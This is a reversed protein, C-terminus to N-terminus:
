NYEVGADCYAIDDLNVVQPKKEAGVHKVLPNRARVTPDQMQAEENEKNDPGEEGSEEDCACPAKQLEAENQEHACVARLCEGCSTIVQVVRNSTDESSDHDKELEADVAAKGFRERAVAMFAALFDQKFGPCYPEPNHDDAMEQARERYRRKERVHDLHEVLTQCNDHTRCMGSPNKSDFKLEGPAFDPGDIIEYSPGKDNDTHPLPHYRPVAIYENPKANLMFLMKKPMIGQNFDTFANMRSSLGRRTGGFGPMSTPDRYWGEVQHYSAGNLGELVLYLERAERLFCWARALDTHHGAIMACKVWIDAVRSDQVRMAALHDLLMSAHLYAIAPKNSIINPDEIRRKLRRYHCMAKDASPHPTACFRCACLFGFRRNIAARREKATGETQMYAINIEVNPKIDACARVVARGMKPAKDYCVEGKKNTPYENRFRLVCNPICCHNLWALTLGLVEGVNGEWATPLAHQDWIAGEVGLRRKRIAFGKKKQGKALSLFENKWEPGMNTAKVQLIANTDEYSKCKKHEDSWLTMLVDAIVVTGAPIHKTAVLGFGSKDNIWRKEFCDSVVPERLDCNPLDQARTLNAAALQEHALDVSHWNKNGKLASSNVYEDVFPLQLYEPPIDALSDPVALPSPRPMEFPLPIGLREIASRSSSRLPSRSRTRPVTFRPGLSGPKQRLILAGPKVQLISLGTVAESHPGQHETVSFKEEEVLEPTPAPSSVSGSDSGSESESESGSVPALDSGVSIHGQQVQGEYDVLLPNEKQDGSHIQHRYHDESTFDTDNAPESNTLNQRGQDQTEVLLAQQSNTQDESSIYEEHQDQSDTGIDRTFMLAYESEIQCQGDQEGNVVLPDETQFETQLTTQSGSEDQRQTKSETVLESVSSSVSEFDSGSGSRHAPDSRPTRKPESLLVSSTSDFGSGAVSTSTANVVAEPDAKTAEVKPDPDIEAETNADASKAPDPVPERQETDPCADGDFCGATARSELFGLLKQMTLLLFLEVLESLLDNRSLASLHILEIALLDSWSTVGMSTSIYLLEILNNILTMHFLTATPISHAPSFPPLVSSSSSPPPPPPPPPLPISPHSPTAMSLSRDM